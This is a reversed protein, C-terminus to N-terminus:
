NRGPYVGQLAVCFTVVQYPQMNPHAQNGGSNNTVQSTLKKINGSTRYIGSEALSSNAADSQVGRGEKVAFNYSHNHAPIQLNTLTVSEVGGKEGLKRASLGTGIGPAMPVRGRLDPLGFMTRGDGGYLNGFLSFLASNSSVPLLRGDAPAWGQPCFNGGLMRIEGVFPSSSASVKLFNTLCAFAILILSFYRKKM